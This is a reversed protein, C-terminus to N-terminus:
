ATPCVDPLDAAVSSVNSPPAWQELLLDLEDIEVGEVPGMWVRQEEELGGLWRKAAMIVCDAGAVGNALSSFRGMFM